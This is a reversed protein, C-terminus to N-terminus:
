YLKALDMLKDILKINNNSLDLYRLNKYDRLYCFDEGNIMNDALSLVELNPLRPMNRLQRLGVGCLSLCRCDQFRELYEKDAKSLEGRAVNLQFAGDLVM